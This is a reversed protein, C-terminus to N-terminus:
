LMMPIVRMFVYLIHTTENRVFQILEEGKKLIDDFDFKESIQYKLNFSLVRDKISGALNQNIPTTQAIFNNECVYLIPCEWM